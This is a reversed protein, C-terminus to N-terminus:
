GACCTSWKSFVFPSIYSTLAISPTNGLKSSVAKAIDMVQKKYQKMNKPEPMAEVAKMASTTALLTRFDKPKFSGDGLTHSYDRLSADTVDPFLAGDAGARIARKKLDAAIKGDSVSINLDVGKKGTFRLYVQGDEEVVHEGKLTTAGYAQKSAKTDQESGPRIGTAMILRLCRANESVKEDKSRCDAENKKSIEPQQQELAKIREFKAASTSKQFEESYVYQERGKADKGIAQLPASADRSIKVETWAPPLKLEKIHAPWSNRDAPAEVLSERRSAPKHDEPSGSGGGSGKKVFQGGHEGSKSRPHDEEEFSSADDSLFKMVADAAKKFPSGKGSLEALPAISVPKAPKEGQKEGEAREMKEATMEPPPTAEAGGGDEPGEGANQMLGMAPENEAEEIDEDSIMNFIGTTDSSQRLEKLTAARSTVGATYASLVTATTTSSIAAKEDERLVRCSPFLYDLDEPVEGLESAFIVPFLKDLEPRLDTEQRSHIRDEYLREDADNTQGLGTATRGWLKSVSYETAACIDLQFQQYIDAIGPFSASVQQLQGEEPLIVLGQNSLMQSMSEMVGYFNQATSYSAGVGSLMQGLDKNRIGIISARFLLNVIIWSMNDRKKIEEFAPELVSLGWFSQAEYEPTPVGPGSLRLIRSGHVNFQAGAPGQVQYWLPSNFDKPYRMDVSVEGPSQIGSWRDFPILGRYSGPLVDDINLPEDLRDEHGEIVILAGAGGFLRSWKLALLLKSRTQTRRVAREIKANEDPDVIGSFSPWAQVMDEAIGDIIRRCLWHNRYLTILTWYDYSMRDLQYQTGETLSSTGFGIRAIPNSFYDNAAWRSANGSTNLGVLRGYDRPKIPIARGLRANFPSPHRDPSPM